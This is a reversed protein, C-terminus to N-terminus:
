RRVFMLVGTAIALGALLYQMGQFPIELLNDAVVVLLYIGFLLKALQLGVRQRFGFILLIGGLAGIGWVLTLLSDDTLALLRALAEAVFFVGAVVLGWHRKRTARIHGVLLLGALLELLLFVERDYSFTIGLLPFLHKLILYLATVFLAQPM